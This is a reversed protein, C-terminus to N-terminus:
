PSMHHFHIHTISTAYKPELISLTIFTSLAAVSTFTTVTTIAVFTLMSIAQLITCTTFYVVLLGWSNLVNLYFRRSVCICWGMRCRIM